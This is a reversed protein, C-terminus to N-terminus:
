THTDDGSAHGRQHPLYTVNFVIGLGEVLRSGEDDRRGLKDGVDHQVEDLVHTHTHTHVTMGMVAM